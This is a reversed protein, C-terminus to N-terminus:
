IMLSKQLNFSHFILEANHEPAIGSTSLTLNLATSPVHKLFDSYAISNLMIIFYDEENIIEKIDKFERVCWPAVYMVDNNKAKLLDENFFDINRSIDDEAYLWLKSSLFKVKNVSFCKCMNEFVPRIVRDLNVEVLPTDTLILLNHKM